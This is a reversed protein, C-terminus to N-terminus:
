EEKRKFVISNLAFIAYGSMVFIGITELLSISYLSGLLIFVLYIYQSNLCTKYRYTFPMHNYSKKSFIYSFITMMLASSFIVITLDLFSFVILGTKITNRNIYYMDNFIKVFNNSDTLDKSGIKSFDLDIVGLEDYSISYVEVTSFIFKIDYQTFLMKPIYIESFETNSDGISIDFYYANYEYTSEYFLEGNSIYATEINATKTVELLYTKFETSIENKVSVEVINPILAITIAAFIGLLTKLVNEKLYLSIFRPNFLVVKLKSFM